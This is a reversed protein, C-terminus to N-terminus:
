ARGSSGRRGSGARRSRGRSPPRAPRRPARPRRRRLPRSRAAPPRPDGVQVRHLDVAPQLLREGRDRRQGFTVRCQPSATFISKAASRAPASRSPRWGARSPPSAPSGSSSRRAASGGSRSRSPAAPSRRAAARRAGAVLGVPRRGRDGLEGALDFQDALDVRGHELRARPDVRRDQAQAAGAGTGVLRGAVQDAGGEGVAAFREARESSSVPSRPTGRGRAPPGPRGRRARGARPRGHRSGPAPGIRRARRSGGPCPAQGGGARAVSGGISTWAGAM